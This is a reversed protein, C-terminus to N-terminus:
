MSWLHLWSFVHFQCSSPSKFRCGTFRVFIHKTIRPKLSSLSVPIMFYKMKFPLLLLIYPVRKVPLMLLACLFIENNCETMVLFLYIYLIQLLWSWFLSFFLKWWTRLKKKKLFYFPIFFFTPSLTVCFLLLLICTICLISTQIKLFIGLSVSVGVVALGLSSFMAFSHISFLDSVANSPHWRSHYGCIWTLLNWM